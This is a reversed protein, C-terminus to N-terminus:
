DLGPPMGAAHAVGDLFGRARDALPYREVFEWFRPGHGHEVLHALEHVLVYDVVYSPFRALRESLRITGDVQTCSAWRRGMRTSWTVSSPRVGDLYADALERARGALERDGGRERARDAGTVRAVLRAVLEEEEAPPLGLPLQVVIVGDRAYASVTRRRRPSRQLELPPLDATAPRREVSTGRGVAM